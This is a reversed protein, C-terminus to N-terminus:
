GEIALVWYVLLLIVALVIVWNLIHKGKMQSGVLYLGRVNLVNASSDPIVRGDIM